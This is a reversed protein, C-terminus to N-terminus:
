LATWNTGFKDVAKQVLASNTLDSSDLDLMKLLAMREIVDEHLIPNTDLYTKIAQREPKPNSQGKTLFNICKAVITLNWAM